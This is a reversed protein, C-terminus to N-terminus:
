MISLHITLFIRNLFFNMLKFQSNLFLLLYDFSNGKLTSKSLSPLNVSAQVSLRRTFESLYPTEYNSLLDDKKSDKPPSHDDNKYSDLHKSPLNVTYRENKVPSPTANTRVKSDNSERVSRRWNTEYSKSSSLDAAATTGSNRDNYLKSTGGGFKTVVAPKRPSDEVVDSDSGTELGDNNQSLRKNRVFTKDSKAPSRNGLNPLNNYDSVEPDEAIANKTVRKRAPSKSSSPLQLPASAPPPM